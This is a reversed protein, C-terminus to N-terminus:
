SRTEKRNPQPPAAPIARSLLWPARLHWAAHDVLERFQADTVTVSAGTEVNTIATNAGRRETRIGGREISSPRPDSM